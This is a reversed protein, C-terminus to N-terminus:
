HLFSIKHGTIRNIIRISRQFEDSKRFFSIFSIGTVIACVFANFVVAVIGHFGISRCIIISIIAVFISVLVYQFLKRLYEKMMSKEFITTFLNYLLWPMGVFLMSIVTSLLIGYVGWVQVMILNLMLNIVATILPRFRDEHWIGAADKYSNLLTNIEVIFFYVSFCIVAPYGFMLSDKQVWIKMFPQFINLLCSMCFSSVISIIMTFTKLDSLNKRKTESIISNGIGSICSYILINVISLLATIIYYYNQYVALITLGLFTSIVLTDVSNVIVGGIKATFLDGIRQNIRKKEEKEVEGGVIFDPFMKNAMAATFINVGAQAILTIILYVYYDQLVFLVIFQIIYRITNVIMTIKSVVDIRQYAQFLSNKYAFLWYSLVTASLNLLFLVYVNLGGPLEGSILQPVFPCIALGGILVIFGIVRYYTKYLNMLACITKKDDQAVPKYMSYVMASGVGLEALNLVSLISVFLGDLGLYEVGLCYIMATRMVFPVILQYVRQILGFIINRSANQARDFQM